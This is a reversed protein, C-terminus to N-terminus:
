SLIPYRYIYKIDFINITDKGISRYGSNILTRKDQVELYTNFKSVIIAALWALILTWILLYDNISFNSYNGFMVLLAMGMIPM